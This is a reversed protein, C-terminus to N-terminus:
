RSFLYDSFSIIFFGTEFETQSGREHMKPIDGLLQELVADGGAGAGAWRIDGCGDSLNHSYNFYVTVPM